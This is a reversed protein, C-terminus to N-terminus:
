GCHYSCGVFAARYAPTGAAVLADYAERTVVAGAADLYRVEYEPETVVRTVPEERSEAGETGEPVEEMDVYWVTRTVPITEVRLEAAATEEEASLTAYEEATIEDEGRFYREMTVPETVERFLPSGDPGLVPDGNAGYVAELKPVEAPEFDCDMTIKAVTYNRMLDDAQRMGYGPVSSTTVLDGSELPGSANCVWMCGEGLANVEVRVDGREYIESMMTDKIRGDQVAGSVSLSVVGFVRKDNEMASLSVVPLAENIRMAARGRKSLSSYTNKDAVVIRGELALLEKPRLAKDMFCRHQGTFNVFSTEGTYMDQYVVGTSTIADAGNDMNAYTNYYSTTSRGIGYSNNDGTSQIIGDSMVAFSGDGNTAIGIVPSLGSVQLPTIRQNNTGDGLEGHGNYGWAWVTGDALLALSHYQGAAVAVAGSLGSVQVPTTQLSTTGDGLQGNTNRGWAWVTGDSLLALSHFNGAAVAVAGSLGSVQVPTFEDFTTGNGLEGNSNYGWARVTGDSLLALSHYHGAVVAIVGSLGSVQLPTSQNTYTGEGLQGYHNRGWAWVTGDSLLAMSHYSGASVAVVGSLGSVQVPTYSTTTTGDGLEGYINTGWAWVTGDSLLALSHSLGPSSAVIKGVNTNTQLGSSGTTTGNGVQGNTNVGWHHLYGDEHTIHCWLVAKNTKGKLMAKRATRILAPGAVLTGVPTTRTTTTGDGLQGNANRGWTRVTGDSLLALSHNYGAVVTVVGSLGSVQVPTTKNTPTGDGLQRYNNYGWARITGDSLLALSHNGGASVAVAGSLGSVQVPTYRDTTTGDGLHGFVNYGWAWVTGDSLLALNHDTGASVAIAGSLGSVQVPTYQNTTTGDGLNGRINYGWARITGDSLLALSHNGGASV